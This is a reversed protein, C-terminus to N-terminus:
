WEMVVLLCKNGRYTNEYVDVVNVIHRCGSARWHLDVERRAKTCDHLVRKAAQSEVFVKAQSIVSLIYSVNQQLAFQQLGKLSKVAGQYTKVNCKEEELVIDNEEEEEEVKGVKLANIAMTDPETQMNNDINIYDEANCNNFAYSKVADQYTKVNCKEEELVIDNEEEEGKWSEKFNEVLANIAMTDPEDQVNNDIATTKLM